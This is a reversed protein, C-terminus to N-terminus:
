LFLVGDKIRMKKRAFGSIYAEHTVLIVTKRNEEALEKILDM